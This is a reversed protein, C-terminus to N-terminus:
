WISLEVAPEDVETFTLVLAVFINAEKEEKMKQLKQSMRQFCLM